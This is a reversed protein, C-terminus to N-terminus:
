RVVDCRFLGKGPRIDAAPNRSCLGYAISYRYIQSVTQYARNAIDLAGRQAINKLMSVINATGIESLPM